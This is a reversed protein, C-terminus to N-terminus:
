EFLVRDEEDFWSRYMPRHIKEVHSRKIKLTPTLLGNEMTWDEKMVVAKEIKEHKELTPNIELISNLLSETLDVKSKKKGAESLIAFMIPQPIGMGVICIQDLDPNKLLSLEMPAPSIYKGKDTKFQDKARGTIFLYGDHDYEGLDGTKLYGDDDFVKATEEPNKYYGLMLCNNKVCIEGIDSLKATAGVTFKGVSGIKNEGPLNCHSIICDETMGYGQIIDIGLKKFWFMITESLPAAGSAIYKANSLGLKQRIKKKLVNNLIPIRLLTNLKKQPLGELIKEQFKAYIRPVAFFLDPQTTELNSAFSDLSESFTLSGGVYLAGMELGIREAIHSLPLYSFYSPNPPLTLTNILNSAANIFNGHSHMVGKPDGTTGSTYIITVLDKPDPLTINELPENRELLSEWTESENIGYKEISIKPIQGFANKQSEYNDLKGVFLLKSDSHEIIPKISKDNLTPYIPISVHGSMMIALDAMIWFDCNKSLLAINSKPPLDKKLLAQAIQRIQRGSEKFSLTELEGNIFQKLFIKDPSFEEWHLFAQLPSKFNTM